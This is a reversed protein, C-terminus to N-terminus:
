GIRSRWCRRPNGSPAPTACRRPSRAPWRPRSSRSRAASRRSRWVAAAVAEADKWELAGLRLGASEPWLSVDTAIVRAVEHLRDRLRVRVQRPLDLLTACLCKLRQRAPLDREATANQAEPTPLMVLAAVTAVLREAALGDRVSEVLARTAESWDAGGILDLIRESAASAVQEEAGPSWAPLALWAQRRVSLDPHRAVQLVLAAYRPRVEPQLGLPSQDLLSAAVYTDESRAMADLLAWAEESDLLRRAAHGVAIRVDRHLQPRDFQQRLLPLSRASRFMGLLRVAEKQVTM